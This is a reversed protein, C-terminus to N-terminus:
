SLSTLSCRFPQVCVCVLVNCQAIRVATLEGLKKKLNEKQETAAILRKRLLAATPKAAEPTKVAAMTARRNKIASMDQLISFTKDFRKSTGFQTQKKGKTGRKRGGKESFVEYEGPGPVTSLKQEFRSSRPFM